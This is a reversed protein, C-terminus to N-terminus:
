SRRPSYPFRCTRGNLQRALEQDLFRQRQHKFAAELEIEGLRMHLERRFVGKAEFDERERRSKERLSRSMGQMSQTHLFSRLAYGYKKEQHSPSSRDEGNKRVKRLTGDGNGQKAELRAEQDREEQHRKAKHGEDTKASSPFGTLYRWVSTSNAYGLLIYDSRKSAM